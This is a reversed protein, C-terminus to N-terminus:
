VFDEPTFSENLSAAKSFSPTEEKFDLNALIGHSRKRRMKLKSSNSKIPTWTEVINKLESDLRRIELNLTNVRTQLASNKRLLFHIASFTMRLPLVLRIVSRIVAWIFIGGATFLAINLYDM